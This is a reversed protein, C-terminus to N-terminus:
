SDKKPLVSIQPGSPINNVEPAKRFTNHFFMFCGFYSSWIGLIVLAVPAIKIALCIKALSVGGVIIQNAANIISVQAKLKKFEANNIGVKSQYLENNDMGPLIRRRVQEIRRNADRIVTIQHWIAFSNATVRLTSLLFDAVPFNGVSAAIAGYNTVLYNSSALISWATYCINSITHQWTQRTGHIWDYWFCTTNILRIVGLWEGTHTVTERFSGVYAANPFIHRVAKATSEVVYTIRISAELGDAFYPKIKVINESFFPKIQAMRNSFNAYCVATTIM